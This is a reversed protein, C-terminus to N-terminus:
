TDKALFEQVDEEVRITPGERIKQRTTKGFTKRLFRQVRTDYLGFKETMDRARLVNALESEIMESEIRVEQAVFSITKEEELGLNGWQWRGRKYDVYFSRERLTTGESYFRRLRNRMRREERSHTGVYGKPSFRLKWKHSRILSWTIITSKEGLITADEVCHAMHQAKGLEEVALELLGVAHRSHKNEALLTAEALFERANFVCSRIGEEIADVSIEVTQSRL